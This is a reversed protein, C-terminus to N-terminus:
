INDKGYIKREVRCILSGENVIVEIQQAIEVNNSDTIINKGPITRAISYGRKLIGKPNLVSLKASFENLKNKSNNLKINISKYLNTVIIKVKDNYILIYRLPNNNNLKDIKWVTREKLQNIYNIESRVLRKTLDDNKLILDYLKSKPDKIRKSIKNLNNRHNNLIKEMGSKLSLYLKQNKILLDNKLPVVIEAAASPTPARYDSVFDSITYDTEHGIASIIPIKSEFIARAVSESNFAHLEELSGGGRAIIAVDSCCYKNLLKIASVIENESFIGQVSVPIIKLNVSPYRRSIINIIDYLVSGTPSTIICINEPLFPLKKKYKSDFLGESSLKAKLQEYAIQLSGIGKPELYEFIVQYSGKTEYLGLRGFGIVSMGNEPTFKLNKRQGKFIIANIRASEDKLTFYFHGSFPTSLNSIQGFVWVLPYKEEILNKLESTLETVSYIKIEM